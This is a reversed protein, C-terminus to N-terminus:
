TGQERVHQVSSRKRGRVVRGRYTIEEPLDALEFPYPAFFTQNLLAPDGFRIVWSRLLDRPEKPMKELNQMIQEFKDMTFNVWLAM